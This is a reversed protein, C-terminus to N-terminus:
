AFNDQMIKITKNSDGSLAVYTAATLCFGIDLPDDNLKPKVNLDPMSWLKMGDKTVQTVSLHNEDNSAGIRVINAASEDM